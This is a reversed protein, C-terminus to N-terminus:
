FDVHKLPKRCMQLVLAIHPVPPAFHGLNFQNQTLNQQHLWGSRNCIQQEPTMCMQFDESLRQPGSTWRRTWPSGPTPAASSPRRWSRSSTCGPGANPGAHLLLFPNPNAFNVFNAFKCNCRPLPAAPLPRQGNGTAGHGRAWQGKGMAGGCCVLVTAWRKRRGRRESNSTPSGRGM